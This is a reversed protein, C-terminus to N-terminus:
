DKSFLAYCVVFFSGTMFLKFLGESASKSAAPGIEKCSDVVGILLLTIFFGIVITAICGGFPNCGKNNSMIM